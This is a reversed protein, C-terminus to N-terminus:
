AGKARRDSRKRRGSPFLEDEPIGTAQSVLFRTASAGPHGKFLKLLTKKCLRTAIVLKDVAMPENREAWENLKEVNVKVGVTM